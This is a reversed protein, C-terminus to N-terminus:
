RITDRKAPTIGRRAIDWAGRWMFWMCTLYVASYIYERTLFALYGFLGSVIALLVFLLAFVWELIKVM